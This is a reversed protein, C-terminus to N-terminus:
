SWTGGDIIEQTVKYEDRFEHIDHTEWDDVKWNQTKVECWQHMRYTYATGEDTMSRAEHKVGKLIKFGCLRCRYDKKGKVIKSSLFEGM